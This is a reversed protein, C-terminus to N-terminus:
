GAPVATPTPDVPSHEGISLIHMVAQICALLQHISLGDKRTIALTNSVIPQGAPDRASIVIAPIGRLTPDESKEQLLRFGDMSPM